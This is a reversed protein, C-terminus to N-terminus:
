GDSEQLIETMSVSSISIATVLREITKRDHLNVASAGADALEEIAWFYKRLNDLTKANM